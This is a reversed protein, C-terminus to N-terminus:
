ILIANREIVFHINRTEQTSLFTYYSYVKGNCAQIVTPRRRMRGCLLFSAVFM